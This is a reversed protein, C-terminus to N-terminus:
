EGEVQNNKRYVDHYLEDMVAKWVPFARRFESWCGEDLSWKTLSVVSTDKEDTIKKFISKAQEVDAYPDIYKGIDVNTVIDSAEYQFKDPDDLHVLYRVGKRFTYGKKCAVFQAPVGLMNAVTAPSRPGDLRGVVHIHAKKVEGDSTVDFDHRIHAWEPFYETCKALVDDTNYSETEVYLLVSFTRSTKVDPMKELEM